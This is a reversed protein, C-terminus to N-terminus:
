KVRYADKREEKMGKKASANAIHGSVQEMGSSTKTDKVVINKVTGVRRGVYYKMGQKNMWVSVIASLISVKLM